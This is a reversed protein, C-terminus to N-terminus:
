KKWFEKDFKKMVNMHTKGIVVTAVIFWVFYVVASIIAPLFVIWWSVAIIGTLKLVILVITVIELFGM